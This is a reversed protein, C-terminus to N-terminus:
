NPRLGSSSNGSPLQAVFGEIAGQPNIGFGAIMKKNQSIATGNVLQWGSPVPVGKGILYDKLRVMKTEDTWIFAEQPYGPDGYGSIGVIMDGDESVANPVSRDEDNPVPPPSTWRVLAGLDEVRGDWVTFRYGHMQAMPHGQGIIVSGVENIATVQGTWGYPHLFQELGSYWLAGMWYNHPGITGGGGPAADWGGVLNGNGSIASARSQSNQLSGLDVMGNKADWRFARPARGETGKYALGAIVTGDSSIGYASSLTNDIPTANPLGGLTKWNKGGQWIAASQVGRPDAAQGVITKGDKSIAVLFNTGGIDVAGTAATWRFVPGFNGRFGVIVSGDGSMGWVMSNPSGLPTFSGQAALSCVTAVVLGALRVFHSYITM